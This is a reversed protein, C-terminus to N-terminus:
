TIRHCAVHSLRADDLLLEMPRRVEVERMRSYVHKRHGKEKYRREVSGRKVGVSFFEGDHGVDGHLIRRVVDRKVVLWSRQIGDGVDVGQLACPRVSTVFIGGQLSQLSM